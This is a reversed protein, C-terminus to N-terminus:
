LQLVPSVDSEMQIVGPLDVLAADLLVLQIFVLDPLAIPVNILKIM